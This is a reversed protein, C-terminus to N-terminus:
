IGVFPQALRAWFSKFRTPAETAVLCICDEDSDVVPQHEVDEDLDAVDGPIFKGMHDSYSGKLILTLEEGGHGHEPMARGSGISLLKLHTREGKALPVDFIAVGPAKKHWKIDSLTKGGLARALAPPLESPAIAARKLKPAAMAVDLSALTASRCIDSVATAPQDALIGGGLSEARRLATRCTACLSIHSAVVIGHAEGVTGAAFALITADDLHHTITV